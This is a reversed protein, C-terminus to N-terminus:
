RNPPKPPKHTNTHIKPENQMCDPPPPGLRTPGAPRAVDVEDAADGDEDDEATDVGCKPKSEICCCCCCCCCCWWCCCCCCCCWCCCCCSPDLCTLAKPHLKFQKKHSNTQIPIHTKSIHNNKSIPLSPNQWFKTSNPHPTKSNIKPSNKCIPLLPNQPVNTSNPIHTKAFPHWHTIANIPTLKWM